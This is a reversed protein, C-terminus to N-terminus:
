IQCIIEIMNAIEDANFIISFAQEVPQLADKLDNYLRKHGQFISDKRRNIPLQEKKQIRVISCAIHMFLGIEKDKNFNKAKKKIQRMAKPLTEKLVIIDLEPIEESLYQYIGQYNIELPIETTELALLINLKDKPTEFLKAISIFPIGHLKPDYTGIICQITHEKGIRNVEQLMVERDSIALPIIDTEENMHLNKELYNKMQLAGGKGTMCLTIIVHHNNQKQYNEKFSTYMDYYNVCVQEYLDQLSTTSSAKRVCDLAILTIPIEITKLPIDTEKAIMEAMTKLSGMDYLLLIGKDQNIQIMKEKLTEYAQQMDLHLPLNFADICDTEFLSTVVNVISSASSEGHMAVLVVPKKVNRMATQEECLFMTIFVVEDMPLHVDFSEELTHIFQMCFVYEENHKQMVEMIKENSLRQAHVKRELMASLHLCLGYFVSQSYVKTFKASADRIFGECLAIIKHDVIKSISEHNLTSDDINQRMTQFDHEIDANVVTSIEEELIGRQRLQEVKHDILDYVMDNKDQSITKQTHMQQNSFTYTYKQPIIKEIEDRYDKYYLFGKRVYDPFDRMYVHILENKVTYERVYANTCGIRIDNQLQKVNYECHYLLICRLLEADVQIHHKMQTAEDIFFKQILDFREQLRRLQLGPIDIRFSFKTAYADLLPKQTDQMSAIVIVNQLLSDKQEMMTFLTNIADIPLKELHNIFIVGGNARPIFGDKEANNGFLHSSVYSKNGDYYRCNFRIFPAEEHIVGVEKAYAYMLSAFYSVGAGSPAVLLTHTKKDPYLIAAKARQVAQKLNGDYGILQSFCSSEDLHINLCYKVPRGNLKRIKNEKVLENLITSLNTRQMQLQTSLQQTTFCIPEDVVHEENMKQIYEYVLHKNTKM